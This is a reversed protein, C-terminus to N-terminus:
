PAATPGVDEVVIWGKVTANGITLSGASTAARAHVSVSGSGTHYAIVNGDGFGSAAVSAQTLLALITGAGTGGTEIDLTQTGTSTIQSMLVDVTIRYLRNTVATWATNQTFNIDASSTISAQNSTSSQQAVVGWPMNWPKTTGYTTLQGIAGWRSAGMRQLEDVDARLRTIADLFTDTRDM